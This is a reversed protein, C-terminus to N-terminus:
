NIIQKLLFKLKPPFPLSIHFSKHFPLLLILTCILLLNYVKNNFLLLIYKLWKLLIDVFLVFLCTQILYLNKHNIELSLKPARPFIKNYLTSVMCAHFSLGTIAHSPSLSLFFETTLPESLRCIRLFEGLVLRCSGRMCEYTHTYKHTCVSLIKVFNM